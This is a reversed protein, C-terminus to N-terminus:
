FTCYLELLEEYYNDTDLIFTPGLAPAVKVFLAWRRAQVTKLLDGLLSEVSDNELVESVCHEETLSFFRLYGHYMIPEQTKGM